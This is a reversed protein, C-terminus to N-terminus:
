IYLGWESGCNKCSLSEDESEKGCDNCEKM